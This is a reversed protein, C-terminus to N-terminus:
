VIPSSLLKRIAWRISGGRLYQLAVLVLPCPRGIAIKFQQAAGLASVLPSYLSLGPATSKKCCHDFDIALYSPPM